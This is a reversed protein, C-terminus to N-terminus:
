GNPAPRDPAAIPPVRNPRSQESVVAMGDAIKLNGVLARKWEREWSLLCSRSAAFFVKKGDLSGSLYGGGSNLGYCKFNDLADRYVKMVKTVDDPLPHEKEQIQTPQLACFSARAPTQLIRAIISLLFGGGSGASV